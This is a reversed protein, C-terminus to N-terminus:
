NLPVQGDRIAKFVVECAGQAGGGNVTAAIALNKGPMVLYGATIWPTGGFISSSEEKRQLRKATEPKLLTNKGNAAALEYAAFKALDRVSCHVHGAGALVGEVPKTERRDPVYKGREKIHQRPQDPREASRATGFGSHTMGLPQFVQDQILTEWERNTRTKAIYALLVYSANSYRSATGPKVIPEEQLVHQVFKARRESVTGTLDFLWPTLRPGLQTYPQIGGTFDLLQAITVKRYDDRMPMDPLAEGLTTDFSLKGADILRGIMLTTMRKTCSGIGFRDDLAIQDPKGVERVGTAAEAIIQDGRVVAVAMSPLGHKQRTSEVLTALDKTATNEQAQGMSPTFMWLFALTCATSLRVLSALNM